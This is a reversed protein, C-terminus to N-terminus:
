LNLLEEKVILHSGDARIRSTCKVICTDDGYETRNEEAEKLTECFEFIVARDPDTRYRSDYLAYDIITKKM